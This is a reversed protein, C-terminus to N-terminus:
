PHKNQIYQVATSVMAYPGTNGNWVWGNTGMGKRWGLVEAYYAQETNNTFTVLADKKHFPLRQLVNSISALSDYGMMNAKGSVKTSNGGIMTVWNNILVGKSYPAATQTPSRSVVETFLDYVIANTKTSAELLALEAFKAVDTAFSM